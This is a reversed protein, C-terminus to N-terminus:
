TRNRFFVSTRIKSTEPAPRGAVQNESLADLQLDIGRINALTPVGIQSTDADLNYFRFKASTDFPVALEAATGGTPTRWLATKGTVAVSAKFEYTMEQYLFVPAGATAGALAPSLVIVQGNTLTLIQVGAATCTTTVGVSPATTTAV